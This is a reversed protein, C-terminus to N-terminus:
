RSFSFLYIAFETISCLSCLSRSRDNFRARVVVTTLVIPCKISVGVNLMSCKNIEEFYELIQKLLQKEVIASMIFTGPTSQTEIKWLEEGNSKKVFTRESTNVNQKWVHLVKGWPQIIAERYFRIWRKLLRKISTLSKFSFAM